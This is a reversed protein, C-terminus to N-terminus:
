LKVGLTTFSLGQQGYTSIMIGESLPDSSNEKTKWDFIFNAGTGGERDEQSVVIDITELPELYIPEKLYSRILKGKSSYYDATDLIITDTKNTNRISVTATLSHTRHETQSYIESYISLYSSEKIIYENLSFNINKGEIFRPKDELKENKSVNNCSVIHALVFGLVIFKKM